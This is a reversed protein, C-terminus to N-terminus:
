TTSTSPDPQPPTPPQADSTDPTSSTTAQSVLRFTEFHHETLEDLLPKFADKEKALERVRKRFDKRNDLNAQVELLLRKMLALAKLKPIQEAIAAPEFAAMRDFKLEQRIDGGGDVRNPVDIPLSLEMDNMVRDLNGGDLNRIHRADLELKRDVSSGGSLDGMILMRFPLEVDKKQGSVDTRYTLTIRSKPLM